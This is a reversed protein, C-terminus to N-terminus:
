KNDQIILTKMILILGELASPLLLTNEGFPPIHIFGGPINMAQCYSVIRYMVDNCVYTGASYSVMAPIGAENLVKELEFVPLRTQMAFPGEPAIRKELPQNGANDPIRAQMLNLACYELHLKQAGAHYGCCIILDPNEERAVKLIEMAGDQFIVPIEKKIIQCGGIQDPLAQVLQWSPNVEDQAFPEFGTVLIKKM